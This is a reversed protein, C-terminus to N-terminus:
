KECEMSNNRNIMMYVTQDTCRRSYVNNNNNNNNYINDTTSASHALGLEAAQGGAHHGEVVLNVEPWVQCVESEPTQDNLLIDYDYFM